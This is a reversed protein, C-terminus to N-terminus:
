AAGAQLAAQIQQARERVGRPMMDFYHPDVAARAARREHDLRWKNTAAYRGQGHIMSADTDNSTTGNDPRGEESQPTTM